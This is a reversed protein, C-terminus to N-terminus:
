RASSHCSLLSNGSATAIDVIDGEPPIMIGDLAHVYGNSVRIDGVTVNVGEATVSHVARYVNIRIPLGNSSTVVKDQLKGVSGAHLDKIEQLIAHYGLVKQLQAPDGTIKVLQDAPVRALADDTPAFLVLENANTLTDMLGASKLLSVIQTFGGRQILESELDVPAQSLVTGLSLLAFTALGTFMKM